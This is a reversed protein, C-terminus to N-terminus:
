VRAAPVLQVILTVKLGVDCDGDVFVAFTVTDTAPGATVCDSLRVPVTIAGTTVGTSDGAAPPASLKPLWCVPVVLAGCATVIVLEDEDVAFRTILEILMPLPWNWRLPQATPPAPSAGPALQVSFM